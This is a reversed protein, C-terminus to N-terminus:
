DGPRRQNSGPVGSGQAYAPATAGRHGVAPDIQTGTVQSRQVVRTLRDVWESGPMVRGLEGLTAMGLLRGTVIPVVLMLSSLFVLNNIADLFRTDLLDTSIASQMYGSLQTSVGFYLVAATISWSSVEILAMIWIRLTPLGFASIGILLPGFCFVVNYLGGQINKLQNHALLLLVQAMMGAFSVASDKVVQGAFAAPNTVANALSARSTTLTQFRAAIASLSSALSQMASDPYIAVAINQAAWWVGRSIPVFLVLAIVCTVAQVKVRAINPVDGTIFVKKQEVIVSFATGVAVLSVGVSFPVAAPGSVVTDFLPLDPIAM